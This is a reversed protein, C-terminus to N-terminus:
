EPVEPGPELLGAFLDGYEDIRALVQAATFPRVDWEGAAGAEVEDWTLPTSVTPLPQARL